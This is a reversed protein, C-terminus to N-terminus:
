VIIIDIYIKRNNELFNIHEKKMGYNVLAM